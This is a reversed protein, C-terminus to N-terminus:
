LSYSVKKKERAMWTETKGRKRSDKGWWWYFLIQISAAGSGLLLGQATEPSKDTFHSFSLWRASEDHLNFPIIYRCGMACLLCTILSTEKEEGGGKKKLEGRGGQAVVNKNAKGTFPVKCM